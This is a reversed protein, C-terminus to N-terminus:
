QYGNKAAEKKMRINKEVAAENKYDIEIAPHVIGMIAEYDTSPFREYPQRELKVRKIEKKKTGM